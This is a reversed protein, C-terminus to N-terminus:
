ACAASQELGIRVVCAAVCITIDFILASAFFVAVAGIGAFGDGWIIAAFCCIVLVGCDLVVGIITAIRGHGIDVIAIHAAFFVLNDAVM